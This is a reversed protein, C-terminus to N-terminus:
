FQMSSSMVWACLQTVIEFSDMKFVYKFHLIGNVMKYKLYSSSFRKANEM